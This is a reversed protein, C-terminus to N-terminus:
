AEIAELRGEARLVGKDQALKTLHCLVKAGKKFPSVYEAPKFGEATRENYAIADAGIEITHRLTMLTAARGTAKDTYRIEEAKSGRYEGIFSLRGEALQKLIQDMKM